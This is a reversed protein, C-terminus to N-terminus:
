DDKKERATRLSKGLINRIEKAEELLSGIDHELMDSDKAFRLWLCTERSEKFSISLRYIFDNKSFAGKAEAYNASISTGAKFLQRGLEYGAPTKPLSNVVKIVDLGFRYFREELEESM